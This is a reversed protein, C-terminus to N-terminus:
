YTQKKLLAVEILFNNKKKDWAEHRLKNCFLVGGIIARFVFCSCVSFLLILINILVIFLYLFIFTIKVTIFVVQATTFFLAQFFNLSTCSKFGHGRCYQHPNNM